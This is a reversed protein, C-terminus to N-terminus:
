FSNHTDAPYNNAYYSTIVSPLSNVAVSDKKMGGRDEFRGGIHWGKGNLDGKERQELIRVFNGNSDFLVGVTKLIEM